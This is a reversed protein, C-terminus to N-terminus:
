KSLYRYLPRAGLVLALVLYIYWELSAVAPLISAVFLAAFFVSLKTLGIDWIDMGKVKKNMENILDM